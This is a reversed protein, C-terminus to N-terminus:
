NGNYVEELEPHLNAMKVLCLQVPVQYDDVGRIKKKIQDTNCIITYQRHNFVDSERYHEICGNLNELSDLFDQLKEEDIDLTVWHGKGPFDVTYLRYKLVGDEIVVKLHEGFYTFHEYDFQIM